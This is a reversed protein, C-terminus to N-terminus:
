CKSKIYLAGLLTLGLIATVGLFETGKINLGDKSLNLEMPYSNNTIPTNNYTPLTNIGRNQSLRENFNKITKENLTIM